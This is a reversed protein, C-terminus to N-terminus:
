QLLNFPQSLTFSEEMEHYDESAVNLFIITSKYHQALKQQVAPVWDYIYIYIEKRMNDEVM